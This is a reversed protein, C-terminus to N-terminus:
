TMLSHPYEQSCSPVWFPRSVGTSGSLFPNVGTGRRLFTKAWAWFPLYATFVAVGSWDGRPRGYLDSLPPPFSIMSPSTLKNYLLWFSQIPGLTRTTPSTLPTSWPPTAVFVLLLHLHYFPFFVSDCVSAKRYPFFFLLSFFFLRSNSM